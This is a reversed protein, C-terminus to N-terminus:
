KELEKHIFNLRMSTKEIPKDLLYLLGPLVFFVIAMSLLTGTGLLTGLQKLVGHSSIFGLMYGIVTLVIGSTTIPVIVVSITQRVADIKPLTKRFDLYRHTFLIAYDVTAGLQVSSIILYSIYFLTMGSFYPIALNIWIATEISLVLIIPILLSRFMILLVFFVAGIAILNVYVDDAKITTMLDYTSVSEGALYWKGPYYKETTSRIAEVTSFAQDGEYSTNITLIMRSYHKSELKSLTSSDLYEAPVEAGANNVFSIIDDVETIKKLANNLETEKSTDGKPVMLVIANSKGFVSDIKDTDKGIQTSSNFIHESGYYFSNKDRSLYSPVILLCFIIVLPLMIKSVVLSFKDFKPVFPRHRTKEILKDSVLILIPFLTFVTLLSFCIGKALALGLDPGIRFKMLILAAFGIVLTLGCSLITGFSKCLANTISEKASLGQKRHEEYSHLLFVLFDLSVALQLINGAGSTVFSITGFMLNSGANLIIAIAISAMMVVPEFWSTTTLILILFVFPVAVKIIKSLEQVTSQTAVAANVASGTMANSNGILKRIDNVASVRKDDSITVTYLATKNKYYNAITKKDQTELPEKINIADDLWTVDTVGSINKLKQKYDLAEAMSVNSIMIRANPIGGGFENKMLNIAKTSASDKPLYDNMDYDVQVKTFFLACAISCITFIIIIPAKQKLIWSFIKQM